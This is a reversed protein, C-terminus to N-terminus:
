PYLIYIVPFSYVSDGSVSQLSAAWQTPQMSNPDDGELVNISLTGPKGNSWSLRIVEGKVFTTEQSPETVYFPSSPSDAIVVPAATTVAFIPVLALLIRSFKM